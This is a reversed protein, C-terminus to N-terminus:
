RDRGRLHASRAICFGRAVDVPFRLRQNVAFLADLMVLRPGVLDIMQDAETEASRVVDAVQPGFAEVCMGPIPTGFVPELIPQVLEDTLARQAEVLRM